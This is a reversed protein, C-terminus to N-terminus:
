LSLRRHELSRGDASDVNVVVVPPVRSCCEDDTSFEGERCHDRLMYGVDGVSGRVFWTREALPFKWADVRNKGKGRMKLEQDDITVGGEVGFPMWSESRARRM